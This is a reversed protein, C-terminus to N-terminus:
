ECRMSKISDLYYGAARPTAFSTGCARDGDIVQCGYYWAGVRSGYNSYEAVENLTDLAGVIVIGKNDLYCAPYIDCMEDLNQRIGTTSNNGAAVFIKIGKQWARELADHEAKNWYTITYKKSAPPGSAISLNIIDAGNVVAIDVAKAIDEATMVKPLTVVMVCYKTHKIVEALSKITFNGHGYWDHGVDSLGTTFDYHGEKCLTVYNKEKDYGTDIVSVKFPASALAVSCLISAGISVSIRKWRQYSM